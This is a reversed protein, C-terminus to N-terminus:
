SEKIEDMNGVLDNFIEPDFAERTPDLRPDYQGNKDRPMVWKPNQMYDLVKHHIKTKKPRHRSISFDEIKTTVWVALIALIPALPIPWIDSFSM